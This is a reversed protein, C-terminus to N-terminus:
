PAVRQWDPLDSTWDLREYAGTTPDISYVQQLNGAQMLVRTGDPSWIKTIDSDEGGPIMPGIDRAPASGDAPMIALWGNPVVQRNGQFVADGKFVWHHLLIWRGDPSYLPWGEQVKPDSPGSTARENTGDAAILHVRFHSYPKGDAGKVEEISNFAITKGYPSWTPGSLTYKSGFDSTRNLSFAKLDSGDPALTVLDMHGIVSEGRVLLRGGTPPEWSVDWPILGRLDIAPGHVGDLGTILLQPNGGVAYVFAIAQSDPRWAAQANGTAPIIAMLRSGSGDTRAVMFQDPGLGRTVYALWRGDPSFSPFSHSGQGTVVLRGAGSLTDRVYLDNGSTYAVLGNAAPGFPAPVHRQSGVFALTAAAILAALMVLLILPRVPLRPLSVPRQTVTDVPLWRELFTWRPRQAMRATQRFVDDLYAPRQPLAIEDLATVIRRDLQDFDTM